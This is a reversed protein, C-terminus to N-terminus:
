GASHTAFHIVECPAASKYWTLSPNQVSNIQDHRRSACDSLPLRFPPM